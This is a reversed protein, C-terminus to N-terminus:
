EGGLEVEATLTTGAESSEIRLRGGALALRERMGWLGVRRTTAMVKDPDFGKGWDRVSTTVVGGRQSLEVRARDSGSHKVANTLAEQVFRFLFLKAQAELRDEEVAGLQYEVEILGAEKLSECLDEVAAALGFRDLIAPRLHYALARIRDMVQQSLRILKDLEDLEQTQCRSALSQLGIKLAGLVQGMEDHLDLAVRQREAEQARILRQSLEHVQREALVQDTVDRAVGRRGMVEGGPGRVPRSRMSLWREGGDKTLHRLAPITLLGNSHARERGADFLARDDHHLYDRWPRGAMEAPTFGLVQQVARSVFLLRGDADLEYVVDPLAQLLSRYRESSLRLDRSRQEVLDELRQAEDGLSRLAAQQVRYRSLVLYGLLMLCFLLLALFFVINRFLARTSTMAEGYGQVVVMAWGPDGIRAAAAFARRGGAGRLLGAAHGRGPPLLGLAQRALEGAEAPDGPGAAVLGGDQDFIHYSRGPRSTQRDLFDRWFAVRQDLALWGLLTGDAGVVPASLTLVRGRGGPLDHAPSVWPRPPGTPLSGPAPKAAAWAPEAALVKQDPALLMASSIEKGAGALPELFARVQGLDGGAVARQFIRRSSIAALRERLRSQHDGVFLAAMRAQALNAEQNEREASDRLGLYVVLSYGGVLLALLLFAGLAALATLRARAFSPQDSPRIM